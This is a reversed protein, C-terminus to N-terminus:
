KCLKKIKKNINAEVVYHLFLALLCAHLMPIIIWKEGIIGGNEMNYIIGFGIFQHTLYLVYSIDSLVLIPKLLKKISNTKKNIKEDSCFWVAIIAGLFFITEYVGSWEDFLCNDPNTVVDKWTGCKSGSLKYYQNCEPTNRYLSLHGLHLFRDYKNLDNENFFKRLDGFIMDMDCNAWYDYEGLYDEFIKGFMPRYDCIKYPADLRIDLGLKNEILNHFNSFSMNIQHVNDPLWDLEIDTM